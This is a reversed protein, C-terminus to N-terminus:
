VTFYDKLETKSALVLKRGEDAEFTKVEQYGDFQLQSVVFEANDVPVEACISKVKDKLFKSSRLIEGEGYGINFKLIDINEKVINNLIYDIPVCLVNYGRGEQEVKLDSFDYYLGESVEPYNFKIVANHPYVGLQHPIIKDDLNEINKLLVKYNEIFPEIAYVRAAGLSVAAFAFYGAHAGVDLVVPANSKFGKIKYFNSYFVKDLCYQDNTFSRLTLPPTM